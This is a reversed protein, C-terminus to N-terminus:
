VVWIGGIPPEHAPILPSFHQLQPPAACRSHKTLRRKGWTVEEEGEM